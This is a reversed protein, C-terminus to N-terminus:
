SSAPCKIEACCTRVQMCNAPPNYSRAFHDINRLEALYDRAPEHSFRHVVNHRCASADNAFFLHRIELEIGLESGLTRLGDEAERLRDGSCYAIDAIICDKGSQLAAGLAQFHRSASFTSLDRFACCHFDDFLVETRQKLLTSKGSGPLGVLITVIQSMDLERKNENGCGIVFAM